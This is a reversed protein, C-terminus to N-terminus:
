WLDALAPRRDGIAAPAAPAARVGGAAAPRRSLGEHRRKAREEGIMRELEVFTRALMEEPSTARGETM